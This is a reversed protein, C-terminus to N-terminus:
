GFRARGRRPGRALAAASSSRPARPAARGRAAGASITFM